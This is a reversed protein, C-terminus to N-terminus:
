RLRCALLSVDDRPPRGGRWADLRALLDDLQEAVPLNKRRQLGDLLREEGFVENNLNMSETV